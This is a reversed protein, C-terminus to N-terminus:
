KSTKDVKCEKHSELFSIYNPNDEGRGHAVLFQYATRQTQTDACKDAPRPKETNDTYTSSKQFISSIGGFMVKVGNNILVILRYFSAYLM